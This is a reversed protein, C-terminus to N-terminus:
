YGRCQQYRDFANALCLSWNRKGRPGALLACEDRDNEYQAYCESEHAERGGCKIMGGGGSGAGFLASYLLSRKASSTLDPVLAPYPVQLQDSLMLETTEGWKPLTESLENGFLTGTLKAKWAVYCEVCLRPVFAKGDSQIGTLNAPPSVPDNGLEWNTLWVGLEADSIPQQGGGNKAVTATRTSVTGNAAYGYRVVLKRALGGNVAGAKEDYQFVSVRGREDYSIDAQGSNGAIATARNAADRALTRM